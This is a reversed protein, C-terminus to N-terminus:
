QTKIVESPWFRINKFPNSPFVAHLSTQSPDPAWSSSRGLNKIVPPRSSRGLASFCPKSGGQVLNPRKQQDSVKHKITNSSNGIAFTGHKQLALTCMAFLKTNKSNPPRTNRIVRRATEDKPKKPWFVTCPSVTLVRNQVGPPLRFRGECRCPVQQKRRLLRLCKINASRGRTDSRGQVAAGAPLLLKAQLHSPRSRGGCPTWFLREFQEGQATNKDLFAM